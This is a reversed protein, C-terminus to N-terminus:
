EVTMTGQMGFEKHHAYSDYFPFTGTKTPIFQLSDQQGEHITKTTVHFDPITLNHLGSNNKFTITISEGKTVTIHDPQFSFNAGTIVFTEKKVAQSATPTPTIKGDTALFNKFNNGYFYFGGGILLLAVIVLTWVNNKFMSTVQISLLISASTHLTPPNPSLTRLDSM